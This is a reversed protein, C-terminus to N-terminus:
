IREMPRGCRPCPVQICPIGPEHPIELRCIPCRCYGGPGAGLGPSRTKRRNRGGEGTRAQGNCQRGRAGRLGGRYRRAGQGGPLRFRPQDLNKLRYSQVVEEVEGAVGSVVTIGLDRARRLLEASLAGCILTSVGQDRLVQLRQAAELHPLILEQRLNDQSPDEPFILIRSCWDLVPAVRFRLVPIAFM